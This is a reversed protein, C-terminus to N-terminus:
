WQHRHQLPEALAEPEPKLFVLIRTNDSISEVREIGSIFSSRDEVILKFAPLVLIQGKVVDGLFVEEVEFRDQSQEKMIVILTSDLAADLPDRRPIIKAAGPPQSLFLLLFVGVARGVFPSRSYRLIM